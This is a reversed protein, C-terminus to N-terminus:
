VGARTVCDLTVYRLKSGLAYCQAEATAEAKPIFAVSQYRIFKKLEKEKQESKRRKLKQM